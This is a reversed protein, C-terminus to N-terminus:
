IMRQTHEGVDRATHHVVCERPFLIIRLETGVHMTVYPDSSTPENGQIRDTIAVDCPLLDKGELVVVHLELMSGPERVVACAPRFVRHTRM